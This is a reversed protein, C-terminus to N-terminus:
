KQILDTAIDLFPYPLHVQQFKKDFLDHKKALHLHLYKLEMFNRHCIVCNGFISDKLTTVQIVCHDHVQLHKNMNVITCEVKHEEKTFETIDVLKCRTCVYVKTDEPVRLSSVFYCCM